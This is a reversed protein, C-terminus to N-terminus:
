RESLQMIQSFIGPLQLIIFTVDDVCTFVTLAIFAFSFYITKLNLNGREDNTFLLGYVKVVAFFYKHKEDGACTLRPM